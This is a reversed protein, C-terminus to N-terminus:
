RVHKYVTTRSLGLTRATRSVNEGSAAYATRIERCKIQNLPHNACAGCVDQDGSAAKNEFADEDIFEMRRRIVARQLASQLERMNGPWDRQRLREIAADTIAVDPAIGAMLHKVIAAFDHRERLPPLEITFANLRYRLDARFRREAVLAALDRNTASVIQVDVKRTKQGGVARVEMSDLFRLLATQAAHPIDAVEDLFLTGGDALRALGPAGESRANTFAGREHGFIEAIFLAEPVAGCNLAVFEGARGSVDHAHRAMLEKGTGTEGLIHIPMRLRTADALGEMARRLTKDHCVFGVETPKPAIAV